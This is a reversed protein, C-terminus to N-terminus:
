TIWALGLLSLCRRPLRESLFRRADVRPMGPIQPDDRHRFLGVTLLGCMVPPPSSMWCLPGSGVFSTQMGANSQHLRSILPTVGLCSVNQELIVRAFLCNPWSHGEILSSHLAFSFFLCFDFPLRIFCPKNANARPTYSCVTLRQQLRAWTCRTVNTERLRQFTTPLVPFWLPAPSVSPLWLWLLSLRLNVRHSSVTMRWLLQWLSVTWCKGNGGRSHTQKRTGHGEMFVFM